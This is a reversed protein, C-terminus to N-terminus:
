DRNDAAFAGVRADAKWVRDTQLRKRHGRQLIEKPRREEDILMRRLGFGPPGGQRFGLEILRCQGAFM